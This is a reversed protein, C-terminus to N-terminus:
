RAQLQKFARYSGLKKIQSSISIIIFVGKSGVFANTGITTSCVAL